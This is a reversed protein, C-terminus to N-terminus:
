SNLKGWYEGGVDMGCQKLIHVEQGIRMFLDANDVPGGKIKIYGSQKWIRFYETMGRVLCASDSSSPHPAHLWNENHRADRALGEIAAWLEGRQGAHNKARNNEALTVNSNRVFYVGYASHANKWRLSREVAVVIRDPYDPLLLSTIETM